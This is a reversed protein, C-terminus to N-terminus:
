EEDGGTTSGPDHKMALVQALERHFVERAAIDGDVLLTYHQPNNVLEPYGWTAQVPDLWSEQGRAAIGTGLSFAWGPPLQERVPEFLGAPEFSPFGTDDVTFFHLIAELVSM